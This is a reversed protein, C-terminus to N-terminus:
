KLLNIYDQKTKPLKGTKKMEEAIIAIVLERRGANFDYDGDPKDTNIEELLEGKLYAKYEDDTRYLEMQIDVYEDTLKNKLDVKILRKFTLDDRLWARYEGISKEATKLNKLLEERFVDAQGQTGCFFENAELQIKVEATLCPDDTQLGVYGGAAVAITLAVGIIKNKTKM